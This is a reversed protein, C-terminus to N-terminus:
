VFVSESVSSTSPSDKATSEVDIDMIDLRPHIIHPPTLGPSTIPAHKGNSIQVCSDFHKSLQETEPKKEHISNLNLTDPRIPTCLSKQPEAVEFTVVQRRNSSRGSQMRSRLGTVVENSDNSVSLPSSNCEDISSSFGSMPGLVRYNDESSPTVSSEESTAGLGTSSDAVEFNISSRYVQNSALGEAKDITDSSASKLFGDEFSTEPEIFSDRIASFYADRRRNAESLIDQGDREVAGPVM